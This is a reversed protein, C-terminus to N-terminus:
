FNLGLHSLTKLIQIGTSWPSSSLRPSSRLGAPWTNRLLPSMLTLPVPLAFCNEQTSTVDALAQLLDLEGPALVSVDIVPANPATEPQPPTSPCRHPALEVPPGQDPIPSKSSGLTPDNIPCPPGPLPYGPIWFKHCELCNKFCKELGINQFAQRLTEVKVQITGTTHKYWTVLTLLVIWDFKDPWKRLNAELTSVDYLLSRAMGKLESENCIADAVDRLFYLVHWDITTVDIKPEM